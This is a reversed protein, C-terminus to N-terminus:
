RNVAAVVEETIQDGGISKWQAVFEDFADIDSEGTIIRLMMEDEIKELSAWRQEM